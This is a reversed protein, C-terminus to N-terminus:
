SETLHQIQLAFLFSTSGPLQVLEMDDLELERNQKCKEISSLRGTEM